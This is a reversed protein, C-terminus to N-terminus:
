RDVARTLIDGACLGIALSAFILFMSGGSLRKEFGPTLRKPVVHYDVVYATAATAIGAALARPATRTSAAGAFWSYVAGWLVMAGTNLGIGTASYKWSPAVHLAAEDGWAIHSVANLPAWPSVDERRGCAAIAATTALAASASSGVATTLSRRETAYSPKQARM